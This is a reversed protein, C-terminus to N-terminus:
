FVFQFRNQCVIVGGHSPRHYFPSGAVYGGGPIGAMIWTKVTGIAWCLAGLSTSVGSSHYQTVGVFRGFASDQQIATPFLPATENSNNTLWRTERGWHACCSLSVGLSSYIVRLAVVSLPGADCWNVSYPDVKKHISFYGVVPNREQYPNASAHLTRGLSYSTTIASM